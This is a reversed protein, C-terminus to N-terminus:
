GKFGYKRFEAKILEEVQKDTLNQTKEPFLKRYGAIVPDPGKEEKEKFRKKLRQFRRRVNM